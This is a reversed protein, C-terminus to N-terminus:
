VHNNKKKKTGKKIMRLILKEFAIIPIGGKEGM